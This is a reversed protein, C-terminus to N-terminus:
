SPHYHNAQQTKHINFTKKNSIIKITKELIICIILLAPFLLITWFIGLISGQSTIGIKTLTIYFLKHFLYLSYSYIGLIIFLKKFPFVIKKPIIMYIFVVMSAFFFITFIWNEIKIIKYIKFIFSYYIIYALSIIIATSKIKGPIKKSYKKLLEPITLGFSFLLINSLFIDIYVYFLPKVVLISRILKLHPFLIINILLIIVSIGIIFKKTGFKKLCFYLPLSILYCQIISSVFWFEQLYIGSIRLLNLERNFFFYSIILVLFLVPYIRLFRSKYFNFINKLNFNKNYEELSYFIGYGSLIFFISILCHAYGKIPFKLFFMNM